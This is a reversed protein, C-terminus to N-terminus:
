KRTAEQERGVLTYFDRIGRFGKQEFDVSIGALLYPLIKDFM